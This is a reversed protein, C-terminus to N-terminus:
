FLNALLAGFIAWYIVAWTRHRMIYCTGQRCGIFRFWLYGVWAGVIAGIIIKVM